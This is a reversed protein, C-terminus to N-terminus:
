APCARNSTKIFRVDGQERSKWGSRTTNPHDRAYVLRDVPAPRLEKGQLSLNVRPPSTGMRRPAERSPDRSKDCKM